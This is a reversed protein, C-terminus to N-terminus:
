NEFLEFQPRAPTDGVPNELQTDCTVAGDPGTVCNTPKVRTAPGVSSGPGLLYGERQALAAPVEMVGWALCFLGLVRVLSTIM